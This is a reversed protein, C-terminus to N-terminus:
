REGYNQELWERYSGNRVRDIWTSNDLYWRVTDRLGDELDHRASWGLVRKLKSCDIAYRKDHGPRDTVFTILSRLDGAQKGTLDAMTEILQHLLALNTRESEGGVNYTEGPNGRRLVLLIAEAHDDVYLWDRVNSGDGYVPLPKGELMNLIMLPVLKEPFQYPGYNNSCNSITTSIGYTHAYARVLHDSSAKSASYPSNPQYRSEEIFTGTPGLSGYVEDTSVHHLHIDPNARVLELLRYTGVINTEIFVGPGHISRDVHSEAAFHVITDIPHERVVEDLMREDCIDGRVFLYRDEDVSGAVNDPNAAYTLADLNVVQGEFDPQRFLTRIFASGIFGCGGTVLIGKLPRM